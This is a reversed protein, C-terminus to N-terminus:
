SGCMSRLLKMRDLALPLLDLLIIIRRKIHIHSSDILKRLKSSCRTSMKTVSKSSNRVVDIFNSKFNM